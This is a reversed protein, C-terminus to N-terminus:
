KNKRIIKNLSPLKFVLVIIIILIIFLIIIFIYRWRNNYHWNTKDYNKRIIDRQYREENLIEDNDNGELKIEKRYLKEYYQVVEDYNFIRKNNEFNVMNHVDILWYVLDKRCSLSKEIPHKRIHKSYNIRCIKCPIVYELNNFFIAMKEVQEETPKFPYAFTISHLSFWMNPGWINPDM